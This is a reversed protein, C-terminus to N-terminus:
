SSMPLDLPIAWDSRLLSVLDGRNEAILAATIAGVPQSAVADPSTRVFRVGSPGITSLSDQLMRFKKPPLCLWAVWDTPGALHRCCHALRGMTHRGNIDHAVRLAPTGDVATFAMCDIGLPGRYGMAAAANAIRTATEVAPQWFPDSFRQPPVISGLYQGASDNLLETIGDFKVRAGEGATGEASSVTLLLGREAIRDVWPELSVIQSRAFRRKTWAVDQESLDVGRGILRNRASHSFESKMVWRRVGRAVLDQLVWKVDTLSCCLTSFNEQPSTSLSDFKTQFRRSNIRAVSDQLPADAVHLGLRSAVQFASHSWGWPVLTADRLDVSSLQELRVFQVHEFVTPTDDPVANVACIVSEGASVGHRNPQWSLLPMVAAISDIRQRVHDPPNSSGDVLQNEFWFNPLYIVSAM